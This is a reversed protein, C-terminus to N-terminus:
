PKCGKCYFKDKVGYSGFNDLCKDCIRQSGQSDIVGVSISNIDVLHKKANAIVDRIAEFSNNAKRTRSDNRKIDTRYFHVKYIPM